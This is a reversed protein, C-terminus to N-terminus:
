EYIFRGELKPYNLQVKRSVNQILADRYKKGTYTVKNNNLIKFNDGGEFVYDTTALLYVQEPHIERNNIEAKILNNNKAVVSLGSVPFGGSGCLLNAIELMQSGLVEVVVVENEFPMLEYIKGVTIAGVPIESIRIGGYNVVGVDVIRQVYASAEERMADAMWNGLNGEPKAKLLKRQNNGIVHNMQSDLVLRYPLITLLAASDESQSGIRHNEWKVDKIHWHQPSCSYLFVIIIVAGLKRKM